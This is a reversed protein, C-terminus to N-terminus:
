QFFLAELQLGGDFVTQFQHRGLSMVEVRHSPVELRLPHSQIHFQLISQCLEVSNAGPRLLIINNYYFYYNYYYETTNVWDKSYDEQRMGGVEPENM